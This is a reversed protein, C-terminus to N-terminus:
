CAWPRMAGRRYLAEVNGQGTPLRAGRIGDGFVVRSSGDQDIRLAFVRDQPGAARFDEVLNWRIRNVRVEIAPAMGRANRASVHTLPGSKLKFSQFTKTPDGDGLLEAVTEGHTALAVNGLVRLTDRRYRHALPQDLTLLSHDQRIVNQVLQRIETTTVGALDAREGTIALTKGPTLLLEPTALEIQDSGLAGTAQGVPDTIPLDSLALAEPLAFATTARTAFDLITM